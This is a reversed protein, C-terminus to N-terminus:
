QWLMYPNRILAPGPCCLVEPGLPDTIHLIRCTFKASRVNDTTPHISVRMIASLSSLAGVGSFNHVRLALAGLLFLATGGCHARITTWSFPNDASLLVPPRLRAGV